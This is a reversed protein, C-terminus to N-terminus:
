GMFPLEIIRFAICDVVFTTAAYIVSAKLAANSAKTKRVSSFLIVCAAIVLMNTVFYVRQGSNFISSSFGMVMASFFGAALCLAASLGAKKDKVLAYVAMVIIIALILTGAAFLIYFPLTFEGSKFCNRVSIHALGGGLLSVPYNVATVATAVFVNAAILLKEIKKNSKEYVFLSLLAVFIIILFNSLYFSNAYFNSLGMFLKEFINMDAFLKFNKLEEAMRLERGPSSLLLFDGVAMPLVSVSLQWKFKMKKVFLIIMLIMFFATTCAATQEQSCALLASIVSPLILRNDCKGELIYFVLPSLTMAMASFTWLFTFSGAPWFVAPNLCSVLMLFIGSLCFIQRSKLSMEGGFAKSLRYLFAAIWVITLANLIQWFTFGDGLFVATCFESATRGGCTIYREKLWGFLTFDDSAFIGLFNGDDMKILQRTLTLSFLLNVVAYIGLPFYEKQKLNYIKNM